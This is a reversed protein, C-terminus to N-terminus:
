HKKREGGRNQEGRDETKMKVLRKQGARTSNGDDLYGGWVDGGTLNAAKTGASLLHELLLLGLLPPQNPPQQEPVQERQRGTESGPNTYHKQLTERQQNGVGTHGGSLNNQTIIKTHM